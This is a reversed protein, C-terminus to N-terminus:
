VKRRRAMEGVLTYKLDDSFEAPKKAIERELWELYGFDIKSMEEGRNKGFPIRRLFVPKKSLNIMEALVTKEDHTGLKEVMERFLRWFLCELIIVDGKADHATTAGLDKLKEFDASKELELFYRLYQLKYQEPEPTKWQFVHQSIKLTDIFFKPANGGEFVFRGIDFQANHAVAITDSFIANLNPLVSSFERKGEVAEQTIHHTAMAGFEIPIKPDFLECFIGEDPRKGAFQIIKADDGTGTTETDFFYLKM